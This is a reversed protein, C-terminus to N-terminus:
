YDAFLDIGLTRKVAKKWENLTMKEINLKIGTLERSIREMVKVTAIRKLAKDFIRKIEDIDSEQSDYRHAEDYRRDLITKIKPLAERLADEMLDNIERTLRKYDREASDPRNWSARSQITEQGHFRPKIQEILARRYEDDM